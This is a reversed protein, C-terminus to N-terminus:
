RREGAYFAPRAAIEQEEIQDALLPLKADLQRRLRKKRVAALSEPKLRRPAAHEAQWGICVESPKWLHMLSEMTPGTAIVTGKSPQKDPGLRIAQYIGHAM